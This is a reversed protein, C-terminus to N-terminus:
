EEQVSEDMGYIVAAPRQFVVDAVVVAFVVVVFFLLVGMEIAGTTMASEAELLNM